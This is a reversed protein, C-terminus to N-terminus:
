ARRLMNLARKAIEEGRDYKSDGQAKSLFEKAEDQSLRMESYPINRILPRGREDQSTEVYRAPAGKLTEARVLMEGRRNRYLCASRNAYPLGGIIKVFAWSDDDALETPDAANEAIVLAMSGLATSALSYTSEIRERARIVPQRAIGVKAAAAYTSMGDVYVAVMAAYVKAEQSMSCLAALADLQKQTLKM